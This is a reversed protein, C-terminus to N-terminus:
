LVVDFRCLYVSWGDDEDFSWAALVSTRMDAV